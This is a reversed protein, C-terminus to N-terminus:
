PQISPELGGAKMGKPRIITFALQCAAALPGESSDYIDVRTVVSRRGRRLVQGVAHAPGHQVPGLYHVTLDSTVVISSADLGAMALRGGVIDALTAVLGGQLAGTPNTVTEDLDLEVVLDGRDSEVDRMRLGSLLHEGNALVQRHREIAAAIDTM